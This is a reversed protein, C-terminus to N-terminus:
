KAGQSCAVQQTGAEEESQEEHHSVTCGPESKIDNQHPCYLHTHVLQLLVHTGMGDERGGERGGERGRKRGGGERGRKRGGERGGESRDWERVGGRGVMRGYITQIPLTCHPSAQLISCLQEAANTEVLDPPPYHSLLLLHIVQSRGGRPIVGNQPPVDHTHTHTHTHTRTHTHTHTHATCTYM